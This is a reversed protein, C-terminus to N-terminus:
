FPLLGKLKKAGDLVTDTKSKPAASKKSAEPAGAEDATYSRGAVKEGRLCAKLDDPATYDRGCAQKRAYERYEKAESPSCNKDMFNQPGRHVSAKCVAKGISAVDLNCTKALSPMGKSEYQKEHEMQTLLEQYSNADHQAKERVAQCFEKKNTCMPQPGGYLGANGLLNNAKSVDCTEAKMKNVDDQIKAQQAQANRKMEDTDCSGGVRKGSSNMAMNMGGRGESSMQMKTKFSNSDHTTEGSVNMKDGRGNVCTGKFKVTNGSRQVDSFDCKSDKSQTRNPDSEGGKPLCVKQTQAPMAVPMGPMDMKSTIEWYEGPAAIANFSLAALMMGGCVFINRKM